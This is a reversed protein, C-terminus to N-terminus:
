RWQRPRDVRWRGERFSPEGEVRRGFGVVLLGSVDERGVWVDALDRPGEVDGDVPVSRELMSRASGAMVSMRIVRLPVLGICPEDGSPRVKWESWLDRKWQCRGWGDEVEEGIEGDTAYRLLHLESWCRSDRERLCTRNEKM